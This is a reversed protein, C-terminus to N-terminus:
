GYGLCASLRALSGRNLGETLDPTVGLLTIVSTTWKLFFGMPMENRPFILMRKQSSTVTETVATVASHMGRGASPLADRRRGVVVKIGIIRGSAM